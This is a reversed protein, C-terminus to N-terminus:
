HAESMSVYREARYNESTCPLSVDVPYYGRATGTGRLEKRAPIRVLVRGFEDSNLTQDYPTQINLSVGEIWKNKSDVFRFLFMCAPVPPGHYIKCAEANDIVSITTTDFAYEELDTDRRSREGTM